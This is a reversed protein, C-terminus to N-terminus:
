VSVRYSYTQRYLQPLAQGRNPVPCSSLMAQALPKGAPAAQASGQVLYGQEAKRGRYDNGKRCCHLPVTGAPPKFYSLDEPHPSLNPNASGEERKNQTPHLGRVLDSDTTQSMLSSSSPSDCETKKPSSTLVTVVCSTASLRITQVQNSFPRQETDQTNTRQWQKM